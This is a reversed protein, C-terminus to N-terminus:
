QFFRFLGRNKDPDTPTTLESRLKVEFVWGQTSFSTNFFNKVGELEWSTEGSFRYGGSLGLYADVGNFRLVREIGAGLDLFSMFTESYYTKQQVEENGLNTLSSAFNGNLDYTAIRLRAFNVGVGLYPYVLWNPNPLLDYHGVASIEGIMLSTKLNTDETSASSLFSFKLLSYSNQDAFRTTFGVSAGVLNEGIRLQQAARLQQNLDSLQQPGNFLLSLYSGFKMQATSDQSQAQISTSFGLLLLAFILHKM